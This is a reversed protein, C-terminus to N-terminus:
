PLVRVPVPRPTVTAPTSPNEADGRSPNGIDNSVATSQDHPPTRAWCGIPSELSCRDGKFFQVGALLLAGAGPSTRFEAQDLIGLAQDEDVLGFSRGLYRAKAAPGSAALLAARRHRMPVPVGRREGVGQAQRAHGRGHHEVFQRVPGRGLGGDLLNQYETQSTAVSNNQIVQGGM